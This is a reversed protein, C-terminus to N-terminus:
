FLLIGHESVGFGQPKGPQMAVRTFEMWAGLTNKVPEYAGASVGGTFVVIDAAAAHADAVARLPGDADDAVTARLVPDVGAVAASARPVPWAGSEALPLALRESHPGPTQGRPPASGPPMLVSGTLVVATAPAVAASAEAVGAAAAAALSLAGLRVSAPLLVAG